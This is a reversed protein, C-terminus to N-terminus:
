SEVRTNAADATAAEEREIVERVIYLPRGKVEDFLRGLYEGLLGITILQVGGLFLVTAMMSPWGAVGRGMIGLYLVHLGYLFSLTAVLLGLWVALQLPVWSFSTIADIAFRLMKRFPYHTEGAVRAEREYHIPEQRFGVWVFMGRLFRNSERLSLVADLAVRDILRFDGTDVPIDIKTVFRMLRYFAAATAKKFLTEGHRKKRVAYVVDAGARWKALMDPILEPPDQLDADMMVIVDGRAHDLGATLCLQHGFNRSLDVGRVHADAETLERIVRATGDRSGDNALVIEYRQFHQGLVATLREHLIPLAKEENYCPIVVSLFPQESRKQRLSPPRNM